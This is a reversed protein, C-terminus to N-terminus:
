RSGIRAPRKRQVIDSHEHATGRLIRIAGPRHDPLAGFDAVPGASHGAAALVSLCSRPWLDPTLGLQRRTTALGLGLTLALIAVLAGVIQMGSGFVLDLTTILDPNIASPVILVGEAAAILAIAQSRRVRGAGVDTRVNVCVEFAALASLFAMLWFAFLFTTGIWQGAPMRGFLHPLTDLVLGPGSDLDLGFYLIAPVIFLAAILAASTDGLTTWIATRGLDVSDDLYSGYVVM